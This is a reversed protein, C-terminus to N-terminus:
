GALLSSTQAGPVPLYYGDHANHLLIGFITSFSSPCHLASHLLGSTAQLRQSLATQSYPSVQHHAQDGLVEPPVGPVQDCREGFSLKFVKYCQWNCLLAACQDQVLSPATEEGLTPQLDGSGASTPVQTRCQEGLKPGVKHTSPSHFFQEPKRRPICVARTWRWQRGFWQRLLGNLGVQWPRRDVPSGPSLQGEWLFRCKGTCREDKQEGTDIAAESTGLVRSGWNRSPSGVKIEPTISCAGGSRRSVPDERLWIMTWYWTGTIKSSRRRIMKIRLREEVPGHVDGGM